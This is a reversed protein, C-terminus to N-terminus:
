TALVVLFWTGAAILAGALEVLITIGTARLAALTSTWAVRQDRLRALEALYVALIFGVPLGVVPVMFFGVIGALGGWVLASNPVGASRLHRGALLYKGVGAVVTAVVAIGLVVWSWGTGTVVAWVAIAALVLLGGPLVQVVVGFLGVLVVLGILLEGASSM